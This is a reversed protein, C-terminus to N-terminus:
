RSSEPRQRTSVCASDTLPREWSIDITSIVAKKNGRLERERHSPSAQRGLSEIWECLTPGGRQAARAISQAVLCGAVKIIDFKHNLSQFKPVIYGYM